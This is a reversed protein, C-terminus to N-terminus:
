KSQCTFSTLFTKGSLNQKCPYVVESSESQLLLPKINLSKRIESSRVKDFFTVEEIRRLFRMESAKVELDCEKQLRTKSINRAFNYAYGSSLM